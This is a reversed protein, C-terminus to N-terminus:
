SAVLEGHLFNKERVGTIDAIRTEDGCSVVRQPLLGNMLERSKWLFSLGTFELPRPLTHQHPLAFLALAVHSTPVTVPQRLLEPPRWWFRQARQLCSEM